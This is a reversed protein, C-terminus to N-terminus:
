NKVLKRYAKENMVIKYEKGLEKIWKDELFDQYDAIVYGRAEKLTKETPPILEEIKIITASNNSKNVIWDTSSGPTWEIKDVNKEKGKELVREQTTIVVKESTNFKDSIEKATLKGISKKVKPMLNAAEASVTYYTVRARQKWKYDGKNLDYFQQLGITDQSAKDWVLIKTAEFLLIGEEYERMLARFEPYKKELQSEEFKICKENVFEEYLQDAMEFPKNRSGGRIRKRSNSTCFKTFDSLKYSMGNDFTFLDIDKEIVPAKWKYTLFDAKLSDRFSNYLENNEKFGGEAKIRNIMVTKALKHRSDRQVKPQLRRKAIDFAEAERKSIRKIIHYGVSSKFPKSFDGDKQLGFAVNEFSMEFKRIGFFGISGGKRASNKDESFARALEAFDAGGKLVDYLSDIKTKAAVENGKEADVRILIHAAEMEGRAKRVDNVKVIHYGAATKVPGGIKGVKQTYAATELGYFGNPLLATVFGLRGKNTKASKDASKEVALEEFTKKGTIIQKKIDMAAQYAALTDAPSADAKVAIMIHSVDVDKQTREFAEKVLTETVETDTLYSDALQKRYGALEKQLAPITDLKMDKARRVKLKFKKYLDLYEDISSKSFDAKDGNTKKYIYEFESVPVDVGDVTFLAKEKQAQGNYAIVLSIIFFLLARKIM